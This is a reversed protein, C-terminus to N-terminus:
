LTDGGGRSVCWYGPVTGAGAELADVLVDQRDIGLGVGRPERRDRNWLPM